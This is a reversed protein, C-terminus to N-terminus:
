SRRYQIDIFDRRKANYTFDNGIRLIYIHGANTDVSVYNMLDQHLTNQVNQQDSYHQYHFNNCGVNLELQNPYDKLFNVGDAHTHGNCYCVFHAGTNKQSFDVNIQITANVGRTETVTTNLTTGDMFAQVIDAIFNVGIYSQATNRGILFKSNFANDSDGRYNVPNHRAIIVGYGAPTTLLANVFWTVQAQKYACFGRPDKLATDTDNLIWDSEFDYLGIVRVKEETYDNYWYNKGEPHNTPIWKEFLPEFCRTYLQEDTATSGDTLSTSNNGVDHNGSVFWFPVNANWIYDKFTNWSDVDAFTSAHFDGTHLAFKCRGKSALYNLIEVTNQVNVSGHSDSIHIFNLLKNGGFGWSNMVSLYGFQLAKDIQKEYKALISDNIHTELKTIRNEFDRDRANDYGNLDPTKLQNSNVLVKKFGGIRGNTSIITSTTLNGSIMSTRIYAVASTQTPKYEVWSLNEDILVIGNGNGMSSLYRVQPDSGWNGPRITAIHQKNANYLSIYQFTSTDKVNSNNSFYLTDGPAFPMFGTVSCNSQATEGGSSNLRYGTKFGTSSYADGNADTANPLLNTIESADTIKKYYAGEFAEMSASTIPTLGIAYRTFKNADTLTYETSLATGASNCHRFSLKVYRANAPVIFVRGFDSMAYGTQSIYIYNKDYYSIRLMEYLDSETTEHFVSIAMTDIRFFEAYRVSKNSTDVGGDYYGCPLLSLDKIQNTVFKSIIKNQIPNESGFDVVPDVSTFGVLYRKFSNADEFTYPVTQLPVGAATCHRFAIRCYKAGTPVPIPTGWYDAYAGTGSIFAKEEDYFVVRLLEYVDAAQTVHLFTIYDNEGISYMKDYIATGVENADTEIHGDTNSWGKGVQPIEHILRGLHISVASNSVGNNSTLSLKADPSTTLYIGGSTWQENTTNWYYWNGDALVLYIHSDGTPYAETLAAVTAYVGSPAGDTIAGNTVSFNFTKGDRLVITWTDTQGPQGNGTSRYVRVIENNVLGLDRSEAM